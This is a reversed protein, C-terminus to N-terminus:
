SHEKSTESTQEIEKVNLYRRLKHKKIFTERYYQLTEKNLSLIDKLLHKNPIKEFKNLYYKFEKYKTLNYIHIYKELYDLQYKDLAIDYFISLVERNDYSYINLVKCLARYEVYCDWSHPYNNKIYKIFADTDDYAIAGEKNLKNIDRKYAVMEYINFYTNRNKKDRFEQVPFYIIQKDKVKSGLESYLLKQRTYKIGTTNHGVNKITPHAWLMTKLIDDINSNHIIYEKSDNETIAKFVSNSLSYYVTDSVSMLKTKKSLSEMNITSLTDNYVNYHQTKFHFNLNYGYRKHLEKLLNDKSVYTLLSFRNKLKRFYSYTPRKDFYSLFTDIVNNEYNSLYKNIVERNKRTDEIYERSATLDLEGIPISIVLNGHLYSLSEYPVGGIIIKINSNNNTHETTYGKQNLKKITLEDRKRQKQNRINIDLGTFYSLTNLYSDLNTECPVRVTVGTYNSPFSKLLKVTPIGDKLYMLYESELGDKGAIVTFNDSIMFPTKSGLGFGGINNNDSDKTSFFYSTYISIVEDNSLGVGFDKVFFYPYIADPFTVIIDRDQNAMNHSDVANSVLERIMSMEKNQYLKDSLVKFTKANNQITFSKGEINGISKHHEIKM